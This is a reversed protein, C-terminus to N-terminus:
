RYIRLQNLAAIYKNRNVAHQAATVAFNHRGSLDEKACMYIYNHHSYNLVADIVQISPFRIPGPPLGYNQYTNYPSDTELHVNLVRRLAFDGVSYKVTPDAQLKMGMKLRNIYLGAVIPFEDRKNTEEEVISALTSVEVPTLGIEEARASRDPNWFNKFEKDMRECFKEASTNWYVEYTNPIFMAPLTEETFGLSSVFDKNQFTKMFTLSDVMLQDSMRKAFQPITRINNFTLKVPSQRGAILNKLLRENNMGPEVAYRGTKMNEPYEKHNALSRFSGAHQMKGVTELQQMLDDFPMDPRIYVYTTKDPSFNPKKFYYYYIYGAGALIITVIVFAICLPKFLKKKSKKKSTSM